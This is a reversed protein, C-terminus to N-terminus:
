ILCPFKFGRMLVGVFTVEDESIVPLPLLYKTIYNDQENYIKGKVWVYSYM